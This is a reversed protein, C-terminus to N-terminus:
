EFDRFIGSPIENTELSNLRTSAYRVPHVSYAVEYPTLCPTNTRTEEGAHTAPKWTFFPDFRRVIPARADGSGPRNSAIAVPSCKSRPIRRIKYPSLLLIEGLELKSKKLPQAEGSERNRRKRRRRRRRRPLVRRFGRLRRSSFVIKAAPGERSMHLREKLKKLKTLFVLQSQDFLVTQNFADRLNSYKIM